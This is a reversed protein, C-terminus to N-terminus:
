LCRRSASSSACRNTLSTPWSSRACHAWLRRHPGIHPDAPRAREPAGIQHPKWIRRLIQRFAVPLPRAVAGPLIASRTRHEAALQPARRLRCAAFPAKPSPGDFPPGKKQTSSPQLARFGTVALTTVRLRRPTVRGNRSIGELAASTVNYRRDLYISLYISLARRMHRDM